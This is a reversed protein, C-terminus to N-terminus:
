IPNILGPRLMILGDSVARSQLCLLSWFILQREAYFSGVRKTKFQRQRGILMSMRTWGSRYLPEKWGAALAAGTISPPTSTVAHCNAMGTRILRSVCNRPTKILTMPLGKNAARVEALLAFEQRCPACDTAWLVLLFPEDKRAVLLEGFSGFGFAKPANDAGVTGSVFLAALVVILFRIGLM